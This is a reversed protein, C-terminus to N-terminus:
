GVEVKQSLYAGANVQVGLAKAAAVAGQAQVAGGTTPSVMAGLGVELATAFAVLISKLTDGKVAKEGGGGLLVRQGDLAADSTATLTIGAGASVSLSQIDAEVDLVAAGNLGALILSTANAGYRVATNGQADVSVSRAVDGGAEYITQYLRLPQSQSSTMAASTEDGEAVVSQPYVNGATQEFLVGAATDVSSSPFSTEVRTYWEKPQLTPASGVASTRADDSTKKRMVSGICSRTLQSTTRLTGQLRVEENRKDLIASTLGSAMTLTGNASGHVYVGGSSRLDWEGESLQQFQRWGLAPEEQLQAFQEYGPGLPRPAMGVLYAKNLNDFGIVVHDFKQPMYRAWSSAGRAVSLFMPITVEENEVAGIPRVVLIGERTRVGQVQATFLRDKIASESQLGAVPGAGESRSLSRM